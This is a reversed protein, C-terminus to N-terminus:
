RSKRMWVSALGGYDRADSLLGVPSEFPDLVLVGGKSLSKNGKSGDLADEEATGKSGDEPELLTTEHGAQGEGVLEDGSVLTKVGVKGAEEVRVQVVTGALLDDGGDDGIGDGDLLLEQGLSEGAGQEAHVGGQHLLVDLEDSVSEEDGEAVFLDVLGGVGEVEHLVDGEAALGVEELLADALVLLGADHVAGVLLLLFDLVLVAAVEGKVIVELSMTAQKRKSM